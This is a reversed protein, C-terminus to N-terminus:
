QDTLVSSDPISKEAEQMKSINLLILEESDAFNYLDVTLKPNLIM